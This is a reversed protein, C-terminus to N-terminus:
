TEIYRSTYVYPFLNSHNGAKLNKKLKPFFLVFCRCFLVFCHYCFRVTNLKVNLDEQPGQYRSLMSPFVEGQTAPMRCPHQNFDWSTWKQLFERIVNWSFLLSWSLVNHGKVWKFVRLLEQIWIPGALAVAAVSATFWCISPRDRDKSNETESDKLIFLYM